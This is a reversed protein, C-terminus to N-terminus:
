ASSRPGGKLPPQPHAAAQGHRAPIGLFPSVALRSKRRARILFRYELRRALLTRSIHSVNETPRAAGAPEPSADVGIRTMSVARFERNFKFSMDSGFYLLNLLGKM